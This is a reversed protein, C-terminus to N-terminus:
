PKKGATKGAGAASRAPTKAAGAKAKAAPKAAPAGKSTSGSGAKSAAPKAKAPSSSKGAQRSGSKAKTATKKPAAASAKGKAEAEGPVAAPGAKQPAAPKAEDAPPDGAKSVKPKRAADLGSRVDQGAQELPSLHKKLEDRPNFKRVDRAITSVDDLEAEKLAEDFQKRFDGAMSRLKSTTRGFTRLMRPLDKPGVVVILVITIVLLEPWGLDLM